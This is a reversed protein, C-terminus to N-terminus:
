VCHVDYPKELGYETRNIESIKKGFYNAAEFIIVVKAGYVDTSPTILSILPRLLYDSVRGM